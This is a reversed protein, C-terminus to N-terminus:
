QVEKIGKFKKPDAQTLFDSWAEEINSESTSWPWTKKILKGTKDEEWDVDGKEIYNYQREAMRFLGTSKYEGYADYFKGKYKFFAHMPTEASKDSSDDARNYMVYPTAKLYKKAALAFESCGGHAYVNAFHAQSPRASEEIKKDKARKVVKDFLKSTKKKKKKKRNRDHVADAPMSVGGSAVSNTPADEKM